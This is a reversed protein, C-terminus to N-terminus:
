RPMVLRSGTFITSEGRVRARNADRIRRWAAGSGLYRRAISWLTDGARVVRATERSGADVYGLRVYVHYMDDYLGLCADMGPNTGFSREIVTEWSGYRAFLTDADPGDESGYRKLNSARLAALAEEDGEYSAIRRENRKANLARAIEEASRGDATMARLMEYMDTVEALYVRRRARAVEVASPDSWDILEAYPGLRDSRPDPAFGYIARADVVIDEMARENLRPDHEYVFAAGSPTCLLALLVVCAALLRGKMLFIKKSM